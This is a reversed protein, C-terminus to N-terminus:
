KAHLTKYEAIIRIKFEDMAFKCLLKTVTCCSFIITAMPLIM